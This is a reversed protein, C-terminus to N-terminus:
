KRAAMAYPLAIAGIVLMVPIGIFLLVRVLDHIM